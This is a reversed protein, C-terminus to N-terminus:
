LIQNLDLSSVSRKPAAVNFLVPAISAGHLAIRAQRFPLLAFMSERGSM